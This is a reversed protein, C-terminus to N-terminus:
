VDGRLPKTTALEAVRNPKGGPVFRYSLTYDGTSSSGAAEHYSTVIVLELYGRSWSNSLLVDILLSQGTLNCRYNWGAPECDAYFGHM